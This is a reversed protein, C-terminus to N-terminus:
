IEVSNYVKFLETMRKKKDGVRKILTNKKSTEMFAEDHARVHFDDLGEQKYREVLELYKKDQDINAKNYEDPWLTKAIEAPKKGEKHLDWVKFAEMDSKPNFKAFAYPKDIAQEIEEGEKRCALLSDEERIEKLRERTVERTIKRLKLLHKVDKVIEFIPARTDIDVRIHTEPFEDVNDSVRMVARTATKFLSKLQWEDAEIKHHLIMMIGFRQKIKEIYKSNEDTAILWGEKDFNSNECFDVYDDHRRIIGWLIKNYAFKDNELM